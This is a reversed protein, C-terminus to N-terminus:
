TIDKEHEGGSGSSLGAFVSDLEDDLGDISDDVKRIFDDIDFMPVASKDPQGTEKFRYIGEWYLMGFLAEESLGKLIEFLIEKSLCGEDILLKELRYHPNNRQKEEVIRLEDETIIERELIQESVKKKLLPTSASIIDGNNLTITGFGERAKILLKGTQGARKAARLLSQLTGAKLKGSIIPALERESQEM